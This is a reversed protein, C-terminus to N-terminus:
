AAMRVQNRGAQKAAYLAADARAFLSLSTDASNCTAYGMSATVAPMGDTSSRLAIARRMREAIMRVEAEGAGRLGVVFEEGGIRGVLDGRRAEECAIQAIRQLVRDGAQHGWTDNVSKFHDIDLVILSVLAEGARCTVMARDVWDMVRRRNAIGTLADTEALERARRAEMRASRRSKRLQEERIALETVDIVVGIICHLQGSGDNLRCARMKLSRHEGDLNEVDFRLRFNGPEGNAKNMADNVLDVGKAALFTEADGEGLRDKAELGFLLKLGESWVQRDEKPFYQWLGIDATEEILRGVRINHALRRGRNRVVLHLRELRDAAESVQALRLSRERALLVFAAVAMATALLAQVASFEM